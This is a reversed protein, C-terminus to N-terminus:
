WKKFFNKKNSIFKKRVNKLMLNGKENFEDEKEEKIKNEPLCFIKNESHLKMLAFEDNIDNKIHEKEFKGDDKLNYNNIEGNDKEGEKDDIDSDSLSNDKQSVEKEGEIIIDKFIVIDYWWWKINQIM